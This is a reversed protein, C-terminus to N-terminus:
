TRTKKILTALAFLVRAGVNSDWDSGDFDASPPAVEVLDAGILRKGQSVLTRILHFAQDLEIGGPVPTGTSPCFRPDLGDIDWSIYVHDGLKASIEQCTKDWSEGSYAKKKLDWDFYTHIFGSKKKEYERITAVEDPSCDRIGIQVLSHLGKFDKVHNMISAHSHVFGEYEVRLDAHADFHLVSFTKGERSFKESIARIPGYSTSHDGGLLIVTKGSEILERCQGTVWEHLAVCGENVQKLIRAQAPDEEPLGGEELFDLYSRAAKRLARNKELWNEPFPFSAMKTEWMRDVDPNFFDVQYSAELVSQPGHSTGARYSTTVDWPVPFFVIESEELEYPLGFYRDNKVLLGSPDFDSKQSMPQYEDAEYHLALSFFM